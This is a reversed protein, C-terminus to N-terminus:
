QISVKGSLSQGPMGTEFLVRVAGKNGHVATIKGNLKKGSPSKWVVKKGVLEKAKEKDTIGEAVVIMQNTTQTHRGSRFNSITGEM